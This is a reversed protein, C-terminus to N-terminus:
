RQYASALAASPQSDHLRTKISLAPTHLLDSLLVFRTKKFAVNAKQKSVPFKTNVIMKIRSSKLTM